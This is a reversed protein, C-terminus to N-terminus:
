KMLPLVALKFQEFDGLRDQLLQYIIENDIDWYIHVLRNRFRAMKNLEQFLKEPIISNEFLVKFIDAYDQPPRLHESAIVHNGASICSEIAIQLLYKASNIKTFDRSFEEM